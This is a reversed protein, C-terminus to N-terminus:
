DRQLRRRRRGSVLDALLAALQHDLAARAKAFEESARPVRIAVADLAQLGVRDLGSDRARFALFAFDELTAAAASFNEESAAAVRLALEGCPVFDDQLWAWRAARVVHDLFIQFAGADGPLAGVLLAAVFRGSRDGRQGVRRRGGRRRGSLRQRRATVSELRDMPLTARARVRM